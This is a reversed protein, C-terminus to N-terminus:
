FGIAFGVTARISDFSLTDLNFRLASRGVPIDAGVGALIDGDSDDFGTFTGPPVPVNVIKSLDLDVEQYGGRVYFKAGNASRIGLRASGGYEYDIVDTGVHLNGEVGAFAKSGLPFDVGVFGGVIPSADSIEVGAPLPGLEDKDVGLDHYGGSLGAYVQAGADQALAASPLLGAAVIGMAAALTKNM